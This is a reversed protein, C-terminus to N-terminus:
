LAASSASRRSRSRASPYISYHRHAKALKATRQTKASLVTSLVIGWAFVCLVAFSAFPSCKVHLNKDDTKVRRRHIEDLGPSRGTMKWRECSQHALAHGRAESGRRVHMARRRPGRYECSQIGAPMAQKNKGIAVECGALLDEELAAITRALQNARM